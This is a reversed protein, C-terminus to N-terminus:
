AAQQQQGQEAACGQSTSVEACQWVAVPVVGLSQVQMLAQVQVMSQQVQVLSQQVQVLSQQVLM